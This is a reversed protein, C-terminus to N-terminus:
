VEEYTRLDGNVVARGLQVFDHFGYLRGVAEAPMVGLCMQVPILSALIRQCNLKQQTPTFRLAFLL